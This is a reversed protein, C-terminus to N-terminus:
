SGPEKPSVLSAPSEGASRRRGIENLNVASITLDANGLHLFRFEFGVDDEGESSLEPPVDFDISAREAALAEATFERRARLGLPNECLGLSASRDTRAIVEVALVPQSVSTAAAGGPLLFEAPIPGRLAAFQASRRLAVPGGTRDASGDRLRSRSRRDPGKALRGLLRWERPPPAAEDAAVQRLEVATITLAANGLHIFRLGIVIDQGGELGLEAPVAFTSRGRDPACNRQPSTVGRWSFGAEAPLRLCRGGAGCAAAGAM